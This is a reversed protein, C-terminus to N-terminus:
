RFLCREGSEGAKVMAKRCRLFFFEWDDSSKPGNLAIEQFREIEEDTELVGLVATKIAPATNLPPLDIKNYSGISKIEELNQELWDYGEGYTLDFTLIRGKPTERYLANKIKKEYEDYVNGRSDVYFIKYIYVNPEEPYFLKITRLIPTGDSLTNQDLIEKYIEDKLQWKPKWSLKYSLRKLCGSLKGPAAGAPATSEPCYFGEGFGQNGMEIKTNELELSFPIFGQGDTIKTTTLDQGDFHFDFDGNVFGLDQGELDLINKEKDTALTLRGEKVYATFKDGEEVNFSSQPLFEM